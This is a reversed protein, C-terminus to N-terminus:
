GASNAGSECSQGVRSVAVKARELSVGTTAGNLGMFYPPERVDGGGIFSFTM